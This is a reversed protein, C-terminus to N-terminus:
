LSLKVGAFAYRGPTSYGKVEQYDEDFVNEVRGFLEVHETLGYSAALDVRTYADLENANAADDYRDGIRLVRLNLNGNKVFRYNATASCSHEPRRALEKGTGEDTADTYTYTLSLDLKETARFTVVTEVGDIEAEAVNQPSYPDGPNPGPAWQILDDVESHFYTVDAVIRGEALSQEVGLDFSRSTEEELDPNGASWADAPWYLDNLTPARFGTGFSGHFRTGADPIRVSGALRFTTEDGFTEHDDYRVGATLAARDKYNYQNQAYVAHIDVTEDIGGSTDAQQSEYEYGVTVTDGDVPYFDAKAGFQRSESTIEFNNFPTDPDEGELEEWALGASFSQTYWATVPKSLSLDGIFTERHQEYNPDDAPNPWVFGDVDVTDDIYNLSLDARGDDLFNLGFRGSLAHNVWEDEETNGLEEAASSVGDFRTGSYGVSFDGVANAGNLGLGGGRYGDSGLAGEAFGHLGETGTKTIINVVGALADTGYLASQPGRVIEIREINAIPINALDFAGAANNNLRLGDLMVKTHQSNHGRIFVSTNQGPPGNQVVNVGPVSRLAELVTDVRLRELEAATIVTTASGIKNLDTETRTATVVVPQMAVTENTGQARTKQGAALCLALGGLLGGRAIRRVNRWM